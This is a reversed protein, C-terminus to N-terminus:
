ISRHPNPPNAASIEQGDFVGKLGSNGSIAINLNTRGSRTQSAEKRLAITVGYKRDIGLVSSIVISACDTPQIFGIRVEKKDLKDSGQAYM